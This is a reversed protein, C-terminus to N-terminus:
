QFGQAAAMAVITQHTALAPDVDDVIGIATEFGTLTSGPAAPAREM